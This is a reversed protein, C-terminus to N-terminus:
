SNSLISCVKKDQKEESADLRVQQSNVTADIIDLLELQQDDLPALAKNSAEWQLLRSRIKRLHENELQATVVDDM